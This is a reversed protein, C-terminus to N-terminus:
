PINFLKVDNAILGNVSSYTGQMSPEEVCPGENLKITGMKKIDVIYMRWLYIYINATSVFLFSYVIYKKKYEHM